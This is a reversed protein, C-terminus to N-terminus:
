PLLVPELAQSERGDDRSGEVKGRRWDRGKEHDHKPLHAHLCVRQGCSISSGQIIQGVSAPEVHLMCRHSPWTVAALSKVSRAQQLPAHYIHFDNGAVCRRASLIAAVGLRLSVPSFCRITCGM